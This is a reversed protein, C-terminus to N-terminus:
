DSFVVVVDDIGRTAVDYRSMRWDVHGTAVVVGVSDIYEQTQDVSGRQGGAWIRSRGDRFSLYM